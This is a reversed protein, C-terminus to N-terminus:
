LTTQPAAKGLDDDRAIALSGTTPLGQAARSSSPISVASRRDAHTVAPSRGANGVAPPELVTSPVGVATPRGRTAPAVQGSDPEKGDGEARAEM